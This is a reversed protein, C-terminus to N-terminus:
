RRIVPLYVAECHSTYIGLQWSNLSGTGPGGTDTVTLRWSGNPNSGVFHRMAGEPQVQGLNDGDM